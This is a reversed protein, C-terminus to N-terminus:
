YSAQGLTIPGTFGSTDPHDAELYAAVPAGELQALRDLLFRTAGPAYPLKYMAATTAEDDRDLTSSRISEIATVMTNREREVFTRDVPEGNGPVFVRYRDFELVAGLTDIWRDPFSDEFYPDTGEEILGGMFLVDEVGVMIDGDTHGPGMYMLTASREGLDIPTFTIGDGRNAVLRNPVIINTAAGQNHAMEPELTEVYPRQAEGYKRIARAARPHAWFEEAGMAAFVDNGFFREYHGHTNVVTIPLRTLRRVEDYIETAQRPGAGTDVVLARELGLVLGTNLRYNDTAIRYVGDALEITRAM